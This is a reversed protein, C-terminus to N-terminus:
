KGIEVIAISQASGAKLKKYKFLETDEWKLFINLMSGASEPPTFM